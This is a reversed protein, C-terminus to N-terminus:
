GGGVPQFLHVRDGARLRTTESVRLDNVLAMRHVPAPLRLRDMLEGVTTGEELRCPFAPKEALNRFRGYLHVEIEM